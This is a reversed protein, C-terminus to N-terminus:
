RRRSTTWRLRAPPVDAPGRGRADFLMRGSLRRRSARGGCRDHRLPEPVRFGQRVRHVGRRASGRHTPVFARRRHGRSRRRREGPGLGTGAHARIKRVRIQRHCRRQLQGRRQRVAVLGRAPGPPGPAAAGAPEGPGTEPGAMRRAAAVPQRRVCEVADENSGYPVPRHRPRRGLADAPVRALLATAFFARGRSELGPRSLHRAGGARGRRHCRRPLLRGRPVVGERAAGRREPTRHRVALREGKGAPGASLPRHRHGGTAHGPRIQSVSERRRRCRRDHRDFLDAGPVGTASFGPSFGRHACQGALGALRGPVCARDTGAGGRRRRRPRSVRARGANGDASTRPLRMPRSASGPAVLAARAATGAGGYRGISGGPSRDVRRGIVPARGTRPAARPGRGLGAHGRARAQFERARNGVWTGPPGGRVGHRLRPLGRVHVASGGSATPALRRPRFTERAARCDGRAVRGGAPPVGGLGCAARRVAPEGLSHSSHHLSRAGCRRARRGVRRANRCRDRLVPAGGPRVRSQGRQRLTGLGRGLGALAVPRAAAGPM